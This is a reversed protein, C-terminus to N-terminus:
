RRPDQLTPLIPRIHFFRFVVVVLTWPPRHGAEISLWGCQRSKHSYHGLRVEAAVAAATEELSFSYIM